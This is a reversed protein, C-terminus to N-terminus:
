RNSTRGLNAHRDQEDNPKTFIFGQDTIRFDFIRCEPELGQLKAVTMQRRMHQKDRCQTLSLVTDCPVPLEKENSACYTLAISAGYFRVKRFFSLVLNELREKRCILLSFDSFGDILVRTVGVEEILNLMNNLVEDAFATSHLSHVRFSGNQLYDAFENNPTSLLSHFDGRFSLLVCKEGFLLGQRLFQLGVATKGTGTAGVVGVLSGKLVGGGLCADLEKIGFSHKQGDHTLPVLAAFSELRPIVYAGRKSIGFFHKGRIQEGGRLKYVEIERIRHISDVLVSDLVIVGDAFAWEEHGYEIQSSTIFIGTCRTLSLLASLKLSFEGWAPLTPLSAKLVSFGDIVILTPGLRKVESILFELFGEAGGRKIIEGVSIRNFGKAISLQDYFEFCGIHQTLKSNPEAVISLFLVHHGSSVVSASINYALITKGAGAPGTLLLLSTLPLGGGLIYDLGPIKTEIDGTNHMIM